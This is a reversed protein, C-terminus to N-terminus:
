TSFPRNSCVGRCVAGAQVMAAMSGAFNENTQGGIRMRGAIFAVWNRQKKFAAWKYRIDAAPDCLPALKLVRFVHPLVKIM